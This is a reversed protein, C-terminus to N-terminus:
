GRAAAPDPAASALIDLGLHRALDAAALQGRVSNGTEDLPPSYTALGGKGPSVTVLAGSIGSKAPLGVQLLWDGSTEYLGAITMVALTARAVDPDVVQEGTIPNVGGDALTAGMTALDATTVTVCSQRTYLDTVLSPTGSLAGRTALVLAIAQNRENSASASGYTDHDLHLPRGAFRSLGDLLSAWDGDADGHSLLGTTTMAGSNVMPNTRGREDREVAAISNFPLGTANVGVQGCVQEVGHARCALAFVFPKACSMLTFQTRSDGSSHAAGDVGVITLGFLQPDAESLAPYVHSVAGRRVGRFREYSDELLTQVTAAAPLAGTSVLRPGDARRPVAASPSAGDNTPTSVSGEKLCLIDRTEHLV